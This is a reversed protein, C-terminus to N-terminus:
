DARLTKVVDRVAAQFAPDKPTLKASQLLVMESQEAISEGEANVSFGAEEIIKDAARSEGVNAETQDIQRTGIQQGLFVSVLVFALWGFVATKWHTASWRGMRAAAGRSHKLPSV